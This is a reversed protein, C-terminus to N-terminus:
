PGYFDGLCQCGSRLGVVQGAERLLLLHERRSKRHYRGAAIARELVRDLGIQARFLKTLQGTNACLDGRAINDEDTKWSLKEPLHALMIRYKPLINRHQFHIKINEPAVDAQEIM